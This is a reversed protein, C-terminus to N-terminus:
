NGLANGAPQPEAAEAGGPAPVAVTEGGNAVGPATAGGGGGGGPAELEALTARATRMQPLDADGALDLARRLAEAAEDRRELARYTMGLHYQVLPDGALAAAAPELYDVADEFRGNRYAIWGYTDQFPAIQTGRLRQAIRTARELSADDTRHATMLSALNNAVLIDSSNEAYLADYVAIADEIRGERELRAARILLLERNGPQAELVRDIVAGAEAARGEATLLDHLVRAASVAVPGEPEAEVLGQLLDTGRAADGESLSLVADVLRLEPDDPAGARLDDLYRRGEEPQGAQAWAVIAALVAQANEGAAGAQRTLLEIGEERRDQRLLIASRLVQAVEAAEPGEIRELDGLVGEALGADGQALAFRGIETLLGIDTPNAGRAEALLSRLAAIRGEAQLFAAYRLTENVGNGSVEVAAALREGMLEPSGARQHAEALMLLIESDEPSQDLARRLDIIAEDPRDEAILMTGRVKLADVNTADRALIEDVLAAAEATEGEARLVDALLAKIWLLRGPLEETDALIGRLEAVADERDGRRLTDVARLGRYHALNAPEEANAAILRDIEAGAADPGQLQRILGIVPAHDRPDGTDPGADRRMAAIAAADDGQEMYWGALLQTAEPSDPFDAEMESLAARAEDIRDLTTLLRLEATRYELEAPRLAILRDLGALATEPDDEASESVVIQWLTVYGPDEALLAAAEEALAARQAADEAMAAERYGLALAIVRSPLAEPAAEVARTGHRQAEPWDGVEMAILALATRADADNPDYEVLRAYQRFSRGRDGQALFIEALNRRAEEHADDLRLVNRYEVVARDLDGEARLEAGSALFGAIREESSQCAALALCLSLTVLLKVPRAGLASRVFTPM